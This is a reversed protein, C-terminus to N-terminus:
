IKSYSGRSFKSYLEWVQDFQNATSKEIAKCTSVMNYEHFYAQM